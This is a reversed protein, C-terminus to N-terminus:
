ETTLHLREYEERLLSVIYVDHYRNQKFAFSRITGDISFGLKNVIKVSAPHDTRIYTYVMNMNLEHFLHRIMLMTVQNGYGRDTFAKHIVIGHLLAKRNIYDIDTVGIYGIRQNNDKNCIMVYLQYRNNFIKDEIWKKDYEQSIFFKNGTTYQFFTGDNRLENIFDLDDYELARFYIDTSM